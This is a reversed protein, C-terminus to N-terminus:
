LPKYISCVVEDGEKTIGVKYEWTYDPKELWWLVSGKDPNDRNRLFYIKRGESDKRRRYVPRMTDTRKGDLILAQKSLELADQETLRKSAPFPLRYVSPRNFHIILMVCIQPLILLILAVAVLLGCGICYTRTTM